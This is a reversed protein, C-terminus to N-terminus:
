REWAPDFESNIIEQLEMRCDVIEKGNVLDNETVRKDADAEDRAIGAKVHRRILRRRAVEFDVEVFWLEDMLEAATSWPEKNLSLYNGEFFIVRCTAPITIDDDVPDKVAHDFSPAYLSRTRPTVEERLARVLKLFKEGDFTFAAGRRAAAYAPDPMAALQARTLHYGDMPVTTAILPSDPHQAAYRQNIRNAMMTALETKGSGPIGSVAILLRADDPTSQFKNWIKDVLRDVQQEM